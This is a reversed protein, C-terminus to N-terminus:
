KLNTHKALKHKVLYEDVKDVTDFTDALTTRLSHKNKMDMVDITSNEKENWFTFNTDDRKM